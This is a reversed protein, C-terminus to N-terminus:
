RRRRTNGVAEFLGLQHPTREATILRREACDHLPVIASKVPDGAADQPVIAFGFIDHLLGIDIGESM